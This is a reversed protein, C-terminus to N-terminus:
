EANHFNIFTQFWFIGLEHKLSNQKKSIYLFTIFIFLFPLRM